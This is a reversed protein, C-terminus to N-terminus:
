LSELIWRHDFALEQAFAAGKTLWYVAAADDGARAPATEPAVGHYAISVVRGRPDRKVASFVGVLRLSDPALVIGTEERLERCAAEPATENKEVLGGPLALEGQFPPYKRRILLFNDGRQILCDVALKM